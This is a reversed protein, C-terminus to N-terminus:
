HRALLYARHKNFIHGNPTPGEHAVVEIKTLGAARLAAITDELPMSFHEVAAIHRQFTGNYGEEFIVMPTRRSITRGAHIPDNGIQIYTLHDKIIIEPSNWDMNLREPLNYDFLLGGTPSLARGIKAFLEPWTETRLHNLADMNITVLDTNNPLEASLINECRLGISTHALRKQAIAIQERSLDIGQGRIQFDKTLQWLFLGTGCCLDVCAGYGDPMLRQAVTKRLPYTADHFDYGMIEDFLRAIPNYDNAVADSLDMGVHVSPSCNYTNPSVSLTLPSSM